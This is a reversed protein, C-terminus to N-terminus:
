SSEKHVSATTSSFYHSLLARILQRRELVLACPRNEQLLLAVVSPSRVLSVPLNVRQVARAALTTLRGHVVLGVEAGGSRLLLVRAGRPEPPPAAGLVRHLEVLPLESHERPVGIRLVDAFQLAFAAHTSPVVLYDDSGISGRESALARGLEHAM